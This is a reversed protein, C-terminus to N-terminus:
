FALLNVGALWPHIQMLAAYVMAAVPVVRIGVSVSVPQDLPKAGRRNASVIALLAYLLFSTFLLVSALDGNSLLHGGAWFAVGWLMPHATLRHLSSPMYKAVLCFVSLMMLVDTLVSAWSPAQWLVVVEARRMGLVILVLGALSILAFLGRYGREGLKSRMADRWAPRWPLTHVLMFLLLGVTLLLM